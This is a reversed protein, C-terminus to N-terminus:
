SGEYLMSFTREWCRVPLAHRLLWSSRADCSRALGCGLRAAMRSKTYQKRATTPLAKTKRPLQVTLHSRTPCSTSDSSRQM